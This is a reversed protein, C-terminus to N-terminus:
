AAARTDEASRRRMAILGLLGLGCALLVYEAPEPVPSVTTVSGSYFGGLSPTSLTGVINLGYTTNANLGSFGLQSVFSPGITGTAIVANGHTVDILNFSSFAASFNFGNFSAISTAGLSSSTTTFTFLDNFGTFGPTILHSFAGIGQANFSLSANLTSTAASASGNALAVLLVLAFLHKARLSM